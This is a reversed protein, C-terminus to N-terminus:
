VIERGRVPSSPTRVGALMFCARVRTLRDAHTIGREKEEEKKRERGKEGEREKDKERMFCARV